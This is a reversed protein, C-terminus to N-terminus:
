QQMNVLKAIRFIMTRVRAKYKLLVKVSNSMGNEAAKHLPTNDNIDGQNVLHFSDKCLSLIYDLYFHHGQLAAIFVVNQHNKDKILVNADNELLIKSVEKHGSSAAILLPSWGFINLFNVASKNRLLSERLIFKLYV